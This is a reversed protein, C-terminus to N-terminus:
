PSGAAARELYGRLILSAAVADVHKRREARNLGGEALAEEAEFSTLREDQLAVPVGLRTRLLDAFAAAGRAQEGWEGDLRLPLGVVLESAGTERMVARLDELTKRYGQPPRSLARLPTAITRTEDSVALGIRKTGVDLALVRGRGTM